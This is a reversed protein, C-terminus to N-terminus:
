VHEIKVKINKMHKQTEKAVRKAAPIWAPRPELNKEPRGLELALAQPANSSVEAKMPSLKRSQISGIYGSTDVAPAQGPASARHLISRRKYVRGSKPKMMNAKIDNEVLLPIGQVTESIEKELLKILDPLKNYEIM